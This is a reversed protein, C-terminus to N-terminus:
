VIPHQDNQPNPCVTVLDVRVADYPINGSGEFDETSKRNM